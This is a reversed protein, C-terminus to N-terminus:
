DIFNSFLYISAKKTFHNEDWTTLSDADESVKTLCQEKICFISFPSLYNVSYKKALIELKQDLIFNIKHNDDKLYKPIKRTYTFERLLLKPLSDSWRVSAGVLYINEIGSTRLDKIIQAINDFDSELWWASLFVIQPQLNVIEEFAITNLKNCKDKIWYFPKCAAGSKHIINFNKNYKNFLGSYLHAANSDGWLYINEKSINKNAINCNKFINKKNLNKLRIYCQNEQMSEKHDYTFDVLNLVEQPYRKPIGNSKYIFLSTIFLM